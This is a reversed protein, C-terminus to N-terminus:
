NNTILALLIVLSIFLATLIIIAKKSSFGSLLVKKQATTLSHSDGESSSLTYKQHLCLIGQTHIQDFNGQSKKYIAECQHTDLLSQPSQDSALMCQRIRYHVYSMTQQLNLSRINILLHNCDYSAYNDLQILSLKLPTEGSLIFFLANPHTEDLRSKLEFLQMLCSHEINHADDIMLLCKPHKEFVCILHNEISLNSDAQSSADLPWKAQMKQCLQEFNLTDTARVACSQFQPHTLQLIKRLFTTKGSGQEALLVIPQNSRTLSQVIVNLTMELISDTYLCDADVHASFPNCQLGLAALQQQTLVATQNAQSM